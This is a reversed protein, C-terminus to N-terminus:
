RSCPRDTSRSCRRSAGIPEASTWVTSLLQMTVTTVRSHALWTCSSTSLSAAELQRTTVDSLLGIVHTANVSYHVDVKSNVVRLTILEAGARIGQLISGYQTAVVSLVEVTIRNFEDFCGTVKKNM